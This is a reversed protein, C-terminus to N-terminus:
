EVAEGSGVRIWGEMPPLRRKAAIVNCLRCRSKRIIGSQRMHEFCSLSLMRGCGSCRECTGQPNTLVDLPLLAGMRFVNSHDTRGQLWQTSVYRKSQALLLPLSNPKIWNKQLFHNYLLDIVYIDNAAYQILRPSLPRDLWPVGGNAQHMAVVEKDKGIVNELQTQELCKQLGIVLHIGNLEKKKEKVLKYSLHGSSLRLLRKRDNEGRVASRSTVEALQLDVVGGLSIGYNDMIELFDQRGDWVVKRVQNSKLLNLLPAIAPEAYTLALADFIFINESHATGICILSLIGDTTGISKGECDLVLYESLALLAVANTVATPTSCFTYSPSHTSSM